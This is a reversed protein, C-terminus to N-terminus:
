RPVVDFAALEAKFNNLQEETDLFFFHRRNGPVVEFGIPQVQYGFANLLTAIFAPAPQLLTDHYVRHLLDEEIPQGAEQCLSLLAPFEAPTHAQLYGRVLRLGEEYSVGLAANFAPFEPATMTPILFSFGFRCGHRCLLAVRFAASLAPCFAPLSLFSGQPNAVRAKLLPCTVVTCPSVSYISAIAGAVHNGEEM